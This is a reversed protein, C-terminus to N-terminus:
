IRLLKQDWCNTPRLRSFFNEEFDFEGVSKVSRSSRINKVVVDDNFLAHNGDFSFAYDALVWELYIM